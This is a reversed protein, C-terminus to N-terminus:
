WYQRENDDMSTLGPLVVCFYPVELQLENIRASIDGKINYVAMLHEERIGELEVSSFGLEKMEELYLLTGEANPPYGYKTIIYLYACVIKENFM